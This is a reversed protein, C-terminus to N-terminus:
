GAKPKRKGARLSQEFEAGSVADPDPAASVELPPLPVNVGRRAFVRRLFAIAEVCDAHDDGPGRGVYGPTLHGTALHTLFVQVRDQAERSVGAADLDALFDYALSYVAPPMRLLVLALGPTREVDDDSLASPERVQRATERPVGYRLVQVAVGYLAAYRALVDESVEAQDREHDSVTAHRSFGM